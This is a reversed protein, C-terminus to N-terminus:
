DVQDLEALELYAAPLFLFAHGFARQVVFGLAVHVVGTVELREDFVQLLLVVLHNGLLGALLFVEHDELQVQRALFEGAIGLFEVGYLAVEFVLQVLVVLELDLFEVVVDLFQLLFLLRVALLHGGVDLDFEVLLGFLGVLFEAFDDFFASFVFVPVFFDASKRVGVIETREAVAMEVGVIREVGLILGVGLELGPHQDFQEVQDFDVPHDVDLPQPGHDLLVVVLAVHHLVVDLLVVPHLLHEHLLVVHDLLLVLFELAYVLLAVPELLHVVFLLVLDLLEFAAEDKQLLERFVVLGFELLEAALHALVLLYEVELQVEHALLHAVQFEAVCRQLVLLAAHADCEFVKVEFGPLELRLQLLQLALMGFVECM